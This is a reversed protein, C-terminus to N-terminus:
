KSFFIMFALVESYNLFRAETFWEEMALLLFVLALPFPFSSNWMSQQQIVSLTIFIYLEIKDVNLMSHQLCSTFWNPHMSM